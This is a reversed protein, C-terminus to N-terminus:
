AFNFKLQLELSNTFLGRVFQQGIRFVRRSAAGANPNTTISTPESTFSTTAFLRYQIIIAVDKSYDYGVGAKVQWAFATGYLEPTLQLTPTVSTIVPTTFGGNAETSSSKIFAAGFGAGILPTWKTNTHYDYYANTLLTYVNTYSNTPVMVIGNRSDQLAATNADYEAWGYTGTINRKFRQYLFEIDARFAYFLQYGIAANFNYGDKYNNIYNVSPLNFFSEGSPSATPGFHTFGSDSITSSNKSPITWGAGITSYVKGEALLNFSACLM